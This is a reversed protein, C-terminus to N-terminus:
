EGNAVSRDAVRKQRPQRRAADAGEEPEKPLPNRRGQDYMGKQGLKGEAKWGYRGRAQCENENREAEAPPARRRAQTFCVVSAMVAIAPVTREV